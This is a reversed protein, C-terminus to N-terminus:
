KSAQTDTSDKKAAGGRLRVPRIEEIEKIKRLQDFGNTHLKKFDAEIQEKTRVVPKGTKAETPMFRVLRFTV